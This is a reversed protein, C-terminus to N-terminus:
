PRFFLELWQEILPKAPERKAPAAPPLPAEAGPPIILVREGALFVESVHTQIREVPGAGVGFIKPDSLLRIVGDQSEKPHM